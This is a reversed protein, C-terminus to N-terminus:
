PAEEEPEEVPEEQADTSEVQEWNEWKFKKADGPNAWGLAYLISPLLLEDDVVFDWSPDMFRIADPSRVMTKYWHFGAVLAYWIGVDEYLVPDATYWSMEYYVGIHTVILLPLLNSVYYRILFEYVEDLRKIFVNRTLFYMVSVTYPVALTLFSLGALVEAYLWEEYSLEPLEMYSHVLTLIGTPAVMIWAYGVMQMLYDGLEPRM